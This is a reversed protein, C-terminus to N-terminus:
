KDGIEHWSTTSHVMDPNDMFLNPGSSLEGTTVVTSWQNLKERLWEDADVRTEIYGNGDWRECKEQKILYHM